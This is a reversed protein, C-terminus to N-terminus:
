PAASLGAAKKIPKVDKFETLPPKSFIETIQNDNLGCLRFYKEAEEDGGILRHIGIMSISKFAEVRDEMSKQQWAGISFFGQKKWCLPAIKKLLPNITELLENLEEESPRKYPTLVEGHKNKQGYRDRFLFAKKLDKPLVAQIKEERFRFQRKVEMISIPDEQENAYLWPLINSNKCLVRNVEELRNIADRMLYLQESKFPIIGKVDSILLEIAFILAEAQMNGNYALDSMLGTEPNIKPLFRDFKKNYISAVMLILHSMTHLEPYEFDEHLPLFRWRKDHYDCSQGVNIGRRIMHAAEGEFGFRRLPSNERYFIQQLQM